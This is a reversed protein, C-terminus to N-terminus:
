QAIVSHSNKQLWQEFHLTNSNLQRTIGLENKQECFYGYKQFYLLMETREEGVLKEYEKPSITNIKVPKNAIKGYQTVLDRLSVVSGVIPIRQNNYKEKGDFIAVIACGLDDVNVMPLTTTEPIPFTFVLTNDKLQPKFEHQLNQMYFGVEVITLIQFKKSRVYETVKSKGTFHPMKMEGKSIKEVDELGSWIYHTVGAEKAADAMLRGLKIENEMGGCKKDWFNTVAFVGYTGKFAQLLQTKDCIDCKVIEAGKEKLKKACESDPNRTIARVKYHGSELLARAVSGGQKGTAGVVTITLNSM